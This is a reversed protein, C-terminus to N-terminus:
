DAWFVYPVASPWKLINGECAKIISEKITHHQRKIIGNAQSNYASIQIHQISFCQELWNLAAIFATGNDTM